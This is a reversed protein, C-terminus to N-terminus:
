GLSIPDAQVLLRKAAEGEWGLGEGVLLMLVVVVLRQLCWARLSPPPDESTAAPLSASCSAGPSAWSPGAERRRGGFVGMASAAGSRREM